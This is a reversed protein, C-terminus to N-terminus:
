LLPFLTCNLSKSMSYKFGTSKYVSCFYWPTTVLFLSFFHLLEYTQYNVICSVRAVLTTTSCSFQHLVTSKLPIWCHNLLQQKLNSLMKTFFHTKINHQQKLNKSHKENKDGWGGVWEHQNENTKLINTHKLDKNM